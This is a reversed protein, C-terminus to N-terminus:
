ETGFVSMRQGEEGKGAEGRGKKHGETGRVAKWQRETGEITDNVSM